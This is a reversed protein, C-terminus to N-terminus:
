VLLMIELGKEVELMAGEVGGVRQVEQGEEAVKVLLVIRQFLSEGKAHRGVALGYSGPQNVKMPPEEAQGVIRGAGALVHRSGFPFRGALAQIHEQAPHYAVVLLTYIESQPLVDRRALRTQGQSTCTSRTARCSPRM